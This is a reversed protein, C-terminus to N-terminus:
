DRFKLLKGNKSRTGEPYILVAKKRIYNKTNSRKKSEKFNVM